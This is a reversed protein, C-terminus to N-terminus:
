KKPEKIKTQSEEIEAYRADPTGLCHALDIAESPTLSIFDGIKYDVGDKAVGSIVPYTTM